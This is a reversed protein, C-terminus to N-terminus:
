NNTKPCDPPPNEPEGQKREGATQKRYEAPSTGTYKKFKKHFYDVNKYGIQKAIEYVKLSEDSLLRKSEDIRVQDVFSNFSMGTKRNFIKGLYSSNYGFLPAIEELKLNEQYNHYIYYLVEDIVNEGTPQGVCRTWLEAQGSLFGIIEYLYYKGEILQIASSNALFPIDENPYRQILAQRVGIYIDVLFHKISTIDDDRGSLFASLEGITDAILSPNHSQIYNALRRAYSASLEPSLPTQSQPSSLETYGMVHQNEQCFFRRRSLQKVDEYSRFIEQVKLVRRGYALFISDFPSGRQPGQAYHRLLNEFKSIAFGGKLLVIRRRELELIDFTTNDQNTVRMLDAFNWPQYFSSPNYNEYSVVQYVSANLNLDNLDLADYDCRNLLIERLIGEKAKERYRNLSLSARAEKEILSRVSAVAQALEEEDIPKTLYFDVGYRMAAQALKFDSVGSLIIFKGVFGRSVAEEVVEIGNKKPMRIDLLVLDIHMSFIKDLTEQGNSATACVTFGLENWDVIYTLGELVIPEDDAILVNRINM